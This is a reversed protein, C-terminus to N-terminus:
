VGGFSFALRSLDAKRGSNSAVTGGRGPTRRALSTRSGGVTAAAAGRSPASGSSSEGGCSTAHGQFCVVLLHLLPVRWQLVLPATRKNGLVFNCNVACKKASGFLLSM